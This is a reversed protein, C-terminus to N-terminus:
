GVLIDRIISMSKKAKTFNRSLQRVQNIEGPSRVINVLFKLINFHGKTDMSLLVSKPITARADDTVFRIANFPINHGLAVTGITASEMDCAVARTLEHFSLKEAENHLITLSESLIGREYNIDDPLQAILKEAFESDTKLKKGDKDLVSGPLLLTGPEVAEKLGAATGWSILHSVKPALIEAAELANDVGIGPISLLIHESIQIPQKAPKLGRRFVAAEQPLPAIIGIM